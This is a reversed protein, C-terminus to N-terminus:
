RVFLKGLLDEAIPTIKSVRTGGILWGLLRINYNLGTQAAIKYYISDNTTLEVIVIRSFVRENVNACYVFSVKGSTEPTLATFSGTPCFAIYCQGVSSTDDDIDVDLIVAIADDPVTVLNSLTLEKWETTTAVATETVILADQLDARYGLIDLQQSGMYLGNEIRVPHHRFKTEKFMERKKGGLRKQKEGM